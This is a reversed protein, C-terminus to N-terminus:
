PYQLLSWRLWNYEKGVDELAKISAFEAFKMAESKLRNQVGFILDCEERSDKDIYSISHLGYKCYEDKWSKGNDDKVYYDKMNKIGNKGELCKRYVDHINNGLPSITGAGTIVVRRNVCTSRKFMSLRGVERLFTDLGNEGSNSILRYNSRYFEISKQLYWNKTSHKSLFLRLTNFM